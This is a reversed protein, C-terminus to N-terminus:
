CNRGVEGYTTSYGKHSNRYVIQWTKVDPNYAYKMFHTPIIIM